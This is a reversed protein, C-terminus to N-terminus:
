NRNIYSMRPIGSPSHFDTNSYLAYHQIMAKEKDIKNCYENWLEKPLVIGNLERVNKIEVFDMNRNKTYYLYKDFVMIFDHYKILIEIFKINPVKDEKIWDCTQSYTENSLVISKALSEYDTDFIWKNDKFLISNEMDINFTSKIINRYQTDECFKRLCNFM